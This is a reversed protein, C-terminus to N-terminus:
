IGRRNRLNPVPNLSSIFRVFPWVCSLRFCLCPFIWRRHQREFPPRQFFEFCLNRRFLAQNKERQPPCLSGRHLYLSNRLRDNSNPLHASKGFFLSSLFLPSLFSLCRLINTFEYHLSLALRTEIRPDSKEHRHIQAVGARTKCRQCPNRLSKAESFSDRFLMPSASQGQERPM